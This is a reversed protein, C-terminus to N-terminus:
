DASDYLKTLEEYLGKVFIRKGEEDCIKERSVDEIEIDSCKSICETHVSATEIGCIILPNDTKTNEIAYDLKLMENSFPNGYNRIEGNNLRGIIQNDKEECFSITGNSFRYEFKPNLTLETTHSAIYLARTKGENFKCRIIATDFNEIDNARYLNADVTEFKESKEISAGLSFFINHLYHAAANNAVSDLILKGNDSKIKGAWGTGRNFYSKGRPWLVITKLFEPEGYVGSLIDKKMSLIADSYSWQYGIMVFKGYKNRAEILKEVDDIDGTLPKECLVNSGHELAKIIMETHFHIPTSLCALDCTNEEYFEDITKYIKWNRNRIECLNACEKPYPEVLGVVEIKNEDSLEFLRELYLTGFGGIGALMVKTKKM